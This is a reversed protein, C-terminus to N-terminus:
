SEAAPLAPQLGSHILDHTSNGEEHAHKKPPRYEAYKVAGPVEQGECKPYIGSRISDVADVREHEDRFVRTETRGVM